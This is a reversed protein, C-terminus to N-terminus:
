DIYFLTPPKKVEQTNQVTGCVVTGGVRTKVAAVARIAEVAELAGTGLAERAIATLGAPPQAVHGGAVLALAHLVM